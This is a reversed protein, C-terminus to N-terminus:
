VTEENLKLKKLCKKCAFNKNSLVESEEFADFFKTQQSHKGCVAENNIFAHFKAKPHIWDHNTRNSQIVPLQWVVDKM